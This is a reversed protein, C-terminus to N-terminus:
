HISTKMSMVHEKLRMLDNDDILSKEKGSTSTTSSSQYVNSMSTPTTATTSPSKIFAKSFDNIKSQLSNSDSSLSNSTTTATTGADNFLSNVDFDIDKSDAVATATSLATTSAVSEITGMIKMLNGESPITPLTNRKFNSTKLSKSNNNTSNGTLLMSVDSDVESDVDSNLIRSVIDDDVDMADVGMATNLPKTTGNNSATSIDISNARSSNANGTFGTSNNTSGSLRRDILKSSRIRSEASLSRSRNTTTRMPQIAYDMIRKKASSTLQSDIGQNSNNNNQFLTSNFNGNTTNNNNNSHFPSTASPFLSPMSDNSSVSLRRSSSVISSERSTLSMNSSVHSSAISSANSKRRKVSSTEENSYVSDGPLNFANLDFNISNNTNPPNSLTSSASISHRMSRSSSNTGGVKKDFLSTSARNMDVSSFLKLADDQITTADSFSYLINEKIYTVFLTILPDVDKYNILIQYLQILKYIKQCTKKDKLNQLSSISILTVLHFNFSHLCLSEANEITIDDSKSNTSKLNPKPKPKAKSNSNSKSNTNSFTLDYVLKIFDIFYSSDINGNINVLVKFYLYYSNLKNFVTRNDETHFTEVSKKWESLDSDIKTLVETNGDNVFQMINWPILRLLKVLCLTIKIDPNVLVITDLSPPVDIENSDNSGLTINFYIESLKILIKFNWYLKLRQIEVLQKEPAKNAVLRNNSKNIHLTNVLYKNLNIIDLLFEKHSHLPDTYNSLNYNEFKILYYFLLLSIELKDMNPSLCFNMNKFMMILHKVNILKISEDLQNLSSKDPLFASSINSNNIKPQCLTFKLILILKILTDQDKTNFEYYRKKLEGNDTYTSNKITYTNVFNLYDNYFLEFDLIPILKNYDNFFSWILHDLHKNADQTSNSANLNFLPFILKYLILNLYRNLNMHYNTLHKLAIPDLDDTSDIYNGNAISGTASISAASTSPPDNNSVQISNSTTSSASSSSTFGGNFSSNKYGKFPNKKLSSFISEFPSKLNQDLILLGSRDTKIPDPESDLGDLNNFKNLSTSSSKLDKLNVTSSSEMLTSSPEMKVETPKEDNTNDIDNNTSVPNTSPEMQGLKQKLTNLELLLQNRSLEVDLLRKELNKTYGKPFSNRTLKDSVVCPFGDKECNTCRPNIESKGSCKIKRARCRDCAQSIRTRGSSPNKIINWSSSSSSHSSSATCKSSKGTNTTTNTNNSCSASDHSHEAINTDSHSHHNHHENGCSSCSTPESEPSETQQPITSNSTM